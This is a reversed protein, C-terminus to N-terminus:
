RVVVEIGEDPASLRKATEDACNYIESEVREALDTTDVGANPHVWIDIKMTVQSFYRPGPNSMDPRRTHLEVHNDATRDVHVRAYQGVVHLRGGQPYVTVDGAPDETLHVRLRPPIIDSERLLPTDAIVGGGDLSVLPRRNM